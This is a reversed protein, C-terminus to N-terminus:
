KVRRVQPRNRRGQQGSKNASKIESDYVGVWREFEDKDQVFRSLQILMASLYIMPYHDLIDNTSNATLTPVRRYYVLRLDVPEAVTGSPLIGFIQGLLAWGHFNPNNRSLQSFSPWDYYPIERNGDTYVSRMAIYDNPLELFDATYNFRNLYEMELCRLDKNIVDEALQCFTDMKSTLDDRHAFDAVEQKLQTYNTIM